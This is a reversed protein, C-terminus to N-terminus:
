PLLSRFPSLMLVGVGTGTAAMQWGNAVWGARSKHKCEAKPTSQMVGPSRGSHSLSEVRINEPRQPVPTLRQPINLRVRLQIV